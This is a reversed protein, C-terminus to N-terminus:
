IGLNKLEKITNNASIHYIGTGGAANWQLINSKKDDILIANKAAYKQKERARKLILEPTPKLLAQVWIKKGKNSDPLSRSPSSLIKVNMNKVYNWLKRGDKMWPMMSWFQLGGKKVHEWFAPDGEKEIETTKRGDILEFAKEFDTLVGDMDLYIIMMSANKFETLYNQLRM